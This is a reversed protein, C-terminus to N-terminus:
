HSANPDDCETFSADVESHIEDDDDVMEWDANDAADNTDDIIDLNEYMIRAIWLANEDGIFFAYKKNPSIQADNLAIDDFPSTVSFHKQVHYTLIGMEMETKLTVVAFKIDYSQSLVM